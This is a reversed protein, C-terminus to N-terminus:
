KERQSCQNRHNLLFIVTKSYDRKPVSLSNKLNGKNELGEKVNRSTFYLGRVAETQLILHEVSISKRFFYTTKFLSNQLIFTNIKTNCIFSDIKLLSGCKWAADTIFVLYKSSLLGCYCFVFKTSWM